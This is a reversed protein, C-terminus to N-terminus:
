CGLLSFAGRRRASIKHLNARVDLGTAHPQGAAYGAALREAWCGGGPWVRRQPSHRLGALGTQRRPRPRAATRPGLSNSRRTWPAASIRPRM